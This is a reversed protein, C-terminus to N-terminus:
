IIKQERLTDVLNQAQDEPTEGPMMRCQTSVEPIYLRQMQM